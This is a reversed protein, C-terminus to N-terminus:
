AWAAREPARLTVHGWEDMRVRVSVVYIVATFDIPLGSRQNVYLTGAIPGVGASLSSTVVALRSARVGQITTTGRAVYRRAFGHPGMGFVQETTGLLVSQLVQYIRDTEHVRYWTHVRLPSGAGAIRAWAARSSAQVWTGAATRLLSASGTSNSYTVEDGSRTVLEVVGLSGGPGSLQGSLRVSGAARAAELARVLTVVAPPSAGSANGAGGIAM